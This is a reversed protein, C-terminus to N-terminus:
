VALAAYAWRADPKHQPNLERTIAIKFIPQLALLQFQPLHLLEHLHEVPYSRRPSSISRSKRLPMPKTRSSRKESKSRELTVFGSGFM